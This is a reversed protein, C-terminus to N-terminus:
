YPYREFLYRIIKDANYNTINIFVGKDFSVWMNISYRDNNEIFVGIIDTIEIPNNFTHCWELSNDLSINSNYFKNLFSEIDGKKNSYLSVISSM